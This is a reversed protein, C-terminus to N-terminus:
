PLDVLGELRHGFISAWRMIARSARPVSRTRHLAVSSYAQARADCLAIRSGQKQSRVLLPVFTRLFLGRVEVGEAKTPKLKKKKTHACIM